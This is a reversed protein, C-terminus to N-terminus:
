LECSGVRCGRSRGGLKIRGASVSAGFLGPYASQLDARLADALGRLADLPKTLDVSDTGQKYNASRAGLRKLLGTAVGYGLIALFKGESAAPVTALDLDDVVGFTAAPYGAARLADGIPGDLWAAFAEGEVTGGGALALAIYESYESALRSQLDARTM